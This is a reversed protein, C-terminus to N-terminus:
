MASMRSFFSVMSVIILGVDFLLCLLCIAAPLFTLIWNRKRNRSEELRNGNWFFVSALTMPIAGLAFRSPVIEWYHMPLMADPYPVVDGAFILLGLHYIMILVGLFYIVDAIIVLIKKQEM